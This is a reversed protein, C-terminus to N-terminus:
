PIKYSFNSFLTHMIVPALEPIPLSIAFEKELSPALNIKAARLNSLNSSNAFSNFFPLSVVTTWVSTELSFSMVFKNSIVFCFYLWSSITTLLAPINSPPEISLRENSVQDLVMVTLKVPTNKHVLSAKLIIFGCFFPLIM